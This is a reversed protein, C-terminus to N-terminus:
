APYTKERVHKVGSTGIETVTTLIQCRAAQMGEGIRKARNIASEFGEYDSRRLCDIAKRLEFRAESRADDCVHSM